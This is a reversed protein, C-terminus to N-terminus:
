STAGVVHDALCARALKGNRVTMNPCTSCCSIRGDNDLVPGREFILYKAHLRADRNNYKFLFRLGEILRRNILSSLMVITGVCFSSQKAYFRFKGNLRKACLIFLYDAITSKYSFRKSKKGDHSTVVPVYYMLWEPDSENVNENLRDSSLYAYPELDFLNKVTSQVDSRKLRNCRDIEKGPTASSKVLNTFDVSNMSFLYHVYKSELIHDVLIPVRDAYEDYITASIGVEFGKAAATKAYRDRLMNIEEVAPAYSMDPRKQGEDIHFMILDVGAKKLNDLYIDDLLLGNTLLVVKKNNTHIFHVIGCLDPHMTPEGGSITITHVYPM